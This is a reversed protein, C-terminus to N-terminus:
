DKGFTKFLTKRRKVKLPRPMPEPSSSSSSLPRLLPDIEEKPPPKTFGGEKDWPHKIGFISEFPSKQQTGFLPTCCHYCKLWGDNKYFNFEEEGVGWLEHYCDKHYFQLCFYCRLWEHRGDELYSLHYRDMTDAKPNKDMCIMCRKREFPLCSSARRYREGLPSYYGVNKPRGEGPINLFELMLGDKPIQLKIEIKEEEKRRQYELVEPDPDIAFTM